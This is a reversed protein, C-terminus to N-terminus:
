FIELGFFNFSLNGNSSYVRIVDTQSLSIGITAIFTELAPMELDYYIYQKLDDAAGAKAISIRFSAISNHRNCVVLSSVTVGKASACTYVDTLTTTAPNSQSLITLASSM